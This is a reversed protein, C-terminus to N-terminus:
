ETSGGVHAVGAVVLLLGGLGTVYVGAGPVFVEWDSLTTAAHYGTLAVIAIGAAALVSGGARRPRLAAAALLGLGLLSITLYDQGMVGWEMGPLFVAPVAGADPVTDIWPVYTGVATVVAGLLALGDALALGNERDM